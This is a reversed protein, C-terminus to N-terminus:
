GGDINGAPVVLTRGDAGLDAGFFGDNKFQTQFEL